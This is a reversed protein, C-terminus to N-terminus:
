HDAGTQNPHVEVVLPQEVVAGRADAEDIRDALGVRGDHKNVPRGVVVGVM